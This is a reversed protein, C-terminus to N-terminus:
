QVPEPDIARETRLRRLRGTERGLHKWGAPSLWDFLEPAHSQTAPLMLDGSIIASCENGRLLQAFADLVPGEPIRREEGTFRDGVLKAHSLLAHSYGRLSLVSEAETGFGSASSLRAYVSALVMLYGSFNADNDPVGYAVM